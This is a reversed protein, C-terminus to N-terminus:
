HRRDVFATLVKSMRLLRHGCVVEGEGSVLRYGLGAYFQQLYDHPNLTARVAGAGAAAHELAVVIRRGLDKGRDAPAVAIRALIATGDPRLVARGTGVVVGDRRAVVHIAGPDRGDADLAADIGQELVFVAHRLRLAAALLVPDRTQEM